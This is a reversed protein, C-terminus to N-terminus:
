GNAFVRSMDPADDHRRLGIRVLIEHVAEQSDASHMAGIEIWVRRLLLLVDFGGCVVEGRSQFFKSLKDGLWNIRTVPLRDKTKSRHDCDVECARWDSESDRAPGGGDGVDHLQERADRAELCDHLREDSM